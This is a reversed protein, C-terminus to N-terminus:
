GAPGIRVDASTASSSEVFIMVQQSCVDCTALSGRVVRLRHAWQTPSADPRGTAWALAAACTLTAAGSDELYDLFDVLLRDHGHLKFGLARRVALYDITAQQFSTMVPGGAVAARSEGASGPRRQCLARDHGGLPAALGARDGAAARRRAAHLVCQRASASSWAGGTPGSAPVSGDRDARHRPLVASWTAGPRAPVGGSPQHPATGSPLLGGVGSGRGGTLATERRGGKGSVTIEGVTWDVDELTLGVVESARLGLRSLVTLIAFDQRGIATRRDCRALLRSVDSSTLGVARGSDRWGGGRPVCGSLSASTFGRVYLFCLLARLATTVNIASGVSLRATDKLLFVNM